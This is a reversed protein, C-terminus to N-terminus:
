KTGSIDFSILLSHATPPLFYCIPSLTKDNLPSPFEKAYLAHSWKRVPVETHVQIIKKKQSMQDQIWCIGNRACSTLSYSDMLWHLTNKSVTANTGILFHTGGWLKTYSHFNPLACFFQLHVSFSFLSLTKTIQIIKRGMDSCVGKITTPITSKGASEVGSTMLTHYLQLNLSLWNHVKLNNTQKNIVM